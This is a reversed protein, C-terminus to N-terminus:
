CLFRPSSKLVSTLDCVFHRCNNGMKDLAVAFTSTKTCFARCSIGGEEMVKRFKGGEIKGENM